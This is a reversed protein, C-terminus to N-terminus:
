KSDYNVKIEIMELKNAKWKANRPAQISSEQFTAKQFTKKQYLSSAKGFLFEPVSETLTMKLLAKM